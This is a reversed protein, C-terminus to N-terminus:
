VVSKRDASAANESSFANFVIKGEGDRSVSVFGVTSTETVDEGYVADLRTKANLTFKFERNLSIVSGESKWCSFTKDGSKEPATVEVTEGSSYVESLGTGM